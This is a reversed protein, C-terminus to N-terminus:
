QREPNARTRCKHSSRDYIEWYLCCAWIDNCTPAPVGGKHTVGLCHALEHIFVTIWQSPWPPGPHVLGGDCQPADNAFPLCLRTMCVARDPDHKGWDIEGCTGAACDKDDSCIVVGQNQQCFRSFGTDARMIQGCDPIELEESLRAICRNARYVAENGLTALRNCWRNIETQQAPNCKGEVTDLVGCFRKRYDPAAGSPDLAQTPRSGVYTFPSTHVNELPDRSLCRGQAPGYYRRRLLYGDLAAEHLYGLRGGYRYPNATTGTSARLTGFAEYLYTETTSQDAATLARTSGIADFHYFSSANSRRQSLLDGYGFPALTYRAVTTDGADTELLIQAGDWLYKATSAGEERQRRMHTGDYTMTVRTGAPTQVVTLEDEYGWTMTTISGAANRSLTNGNADYTSTTLTGAADELTLEDAADYSYTSTVAGTLKTARNGVADYTDTLDYANTGSRQERTLRNLADYTWTLVDGNAEAM